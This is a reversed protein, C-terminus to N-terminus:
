SAADIQLIGFNFGAGYTFYGQYLGARASILPLGLEIGMHIKKGLQIDTDLLHRVELSPVIHVLPLSVLLSAGVLINQPETPPAIAGNAAVFKTNGINKGVLSITPQVFTPITLNLGLDLAYGKGTAESFSDFIIDPTSSGSIIDAITQPGWETRIGTRTIYKLAFGMQLIGGISWGSGIAYGNDTIYNTTLTPSVPNDAIVSVDVDYYYAAAFFPMIVSSKASAGLWIPKGYLKDLTSAFTTSDGLSSFNELASVDGLGVKPDAITWYVGGNKAISAPNYWLAEDNEVVASYAGGMGMARANNHVEFLETAHAKLSFVALIFIIIPLQM